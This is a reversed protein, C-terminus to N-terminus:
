GEKRPFYRNLTQQSGDWPFARRLVAELERGQGALYRGSISEFGERDLGLRGTVAGYVRRGRVGYRVAVQHVAEDLSLSQHRMTDLVELIVTLTSVPGFQGGRKTRPRKRPTVPDNGPHKPSTRSRAPTPKVNDQVRRRVPPPTFGRPLARYRADQRGQPDVPPHVATRRPASGPPM